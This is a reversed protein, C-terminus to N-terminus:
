NPDPNRCSCLLVLMSDALHLALKEGVLLSGMDNLGQVLKTDRGWNDSCYDYICVAVCRTCASVNGGSRTQTMVQRGCDGNGLCFYDCRPLQTNVGKLSKKLETDTSMTTRIPWTCLDRCLKQTKYTLFFFLSCLMRFNHCGSFIILMTHDYLIMGETRHSFDLWEFLGM